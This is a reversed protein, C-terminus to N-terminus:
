LDKVLITFSERSRGYGSGLDAEARGSIVGLGWDRFGLREYLRRARRNAPSVGLAVRKHGRERLLREAEAIMATGIGKGRHATTVQLRNLIPVDPLERRLAREEAPALWLYVSGVPEQERWAVLLVGHERRRQRLRDKFFREQGLAHVLLPLDTKAAQRIHPASM